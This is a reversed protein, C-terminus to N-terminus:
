GCLFGLPCFENFDKAQLDEFLGNIGKSREFFLSVTSVTRWVDKIGWDSPLLTWLAMTSGKPGVM